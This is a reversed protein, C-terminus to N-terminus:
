SCKASRSGSRRTTKSRISAPTDVRRYRRVCSGTPVLISVRARDVDFDATDLDNTSRGRSASPSSILRWNPSRRRATIISSPSSSLPRIIITAKPILVSPTFIGSPSHSPEVSVRGDRGRQQRIQDLAAQVGLLPHQEDDVAGFRQALRDAGHEAVHGHLAAQPVFFAVDETMEGLAVTRRDLGPQAPRPALGVIVARKLLEGPERVVELARM